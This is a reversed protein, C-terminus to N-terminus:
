ASAEKREYLDGVTCNLFAAIEPLRDSRPMKKGRTWYSVIMDSVGLARALDHQTKEVAKLKESIYIAM